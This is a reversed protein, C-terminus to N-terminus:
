ICGSWSCVIHFGARCFAALAFVVNGFVGLALYLGLLHVLYSIGGLWMCVTSFFVRGFACLAFCVWGFAGLALSCGALHM